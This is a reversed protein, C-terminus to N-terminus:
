VVVQVVMASVFQPYDARGSLLCFELLVTLLSGLSYPGLLLEAM